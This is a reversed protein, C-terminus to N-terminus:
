GDDICPCSDMTDPISQILVIGGLVVLAVVIPEMSLLVTAIDLLLDDFLTLHDDPFILLTTGEWSPDTMLADIADHFAWQVGWVVVGIVMGGIIDTKTHMGCYLRGFIVSFLYVALGCVSLAKAAM